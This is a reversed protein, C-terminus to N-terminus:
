FYKIVLGIAYFVLIAVILMHVTQWVFTTFYKVGYHTNWTRIIDKISVFTWIVYIALLVWRGWM